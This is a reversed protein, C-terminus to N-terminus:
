ALIGHEIRTLEDKVLNIGFTNDLLNKPCVGGLALNNTALWANFKDKEEFVDIGLNYLLTIQLIKESYIPDFSKSERKYRQMTRESMNLFASWENLDFPTKKAFNYFSSFSIGLRVANIFHLIDRDDIANYSIRKDAIDLIGPM